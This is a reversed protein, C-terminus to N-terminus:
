GQPPEGGAGPFGYGPPMKAAMQEMQALMESPRTNADGSAWALVNFLMMSFAAIAPNPRAKAAEEIAKMEGRIENYDRSAKFLKEGCGPCFKATPLYKWGCTHELEKSSMPFM